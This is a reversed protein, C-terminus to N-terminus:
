YRLSQPDSRPTVDTIKWNTVVAAVFPDFVHKIRIPTQEITGSITLTDGRRLTKARELEIEDGIRLGVRKSLLFARECSPTGGYWRTGLNGFLPATSHRLVIRMRGADEVDIFVEFPTVSTVRALVEVSGGQMQLARATLEEVRDEYRFFNDKYLETDAVDQGLAVLAESEIAAATPEPEEAPLLTAGNGFGSSILACALFFCGTPLCRFSSRVEPEEACTPHAILRKM